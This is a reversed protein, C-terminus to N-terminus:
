SGTRTPAARLCSSARVIPGAVTLDETLVDSEYALVDTRRGAFRQDAVMHEQTMGQAIDAQFPVPKMPDSIYEDYPTGVDGPVDFALRGGPQLYLSRTTVTHPPWADFTRWEDRGTDFM